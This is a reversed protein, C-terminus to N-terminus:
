DGHVHIYPRKEMDSLRNSKKKTNYDHESGHLHKM